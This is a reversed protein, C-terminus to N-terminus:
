FTSMCSRSSTASTLTIRNEPSKQQLAPMEPFSNRVRQGLKERASIYGQRTKQCTSLHMWLAATVENFLTITALLATIHKFFSPCQAHLGTTEPPFLQQWESSKFVNIFSIPLLTSNKMWVQTGVEEQLIGLQKHDSFHGLVGCLAFWHRGVPELCAREFTQPCRIM